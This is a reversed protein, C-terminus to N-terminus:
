SFSDPDSGQQVAETQGTALTVIMAQGGYGHTQDHGRVVVDSVSDPISITKSRTFERTGHAHLLERRGLSEGDRTEVQWWNAYGEEGDDDHLLTVAFRSEGDDPKIEVGVVNAERLDLEEGTASESDSPTSETSTTRGDTPVASDNCGAFGVGVSTVIGALYTRRTTRARM